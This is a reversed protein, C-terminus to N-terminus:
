EAPSTKLAEPLDAARLFAAADLGDIMGSGTEAFAWALANAAQLVRRSANGWTVFALRNGDRRITVMGDAAAMRIEQWGEPPEEDPFSPMGDIMRMKMTLGRRALLDRVAPWSPPPGAFAAALPSGHNEPFEPRM